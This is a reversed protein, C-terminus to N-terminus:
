QAAKTAPPIVGVARGAAIANAVVTEEDDAGAPSGASISPAKKADTRITDLTKAGQEKSDRYYRADATDVTAGRDALLELFAQKSSARKCTAFIALLRDHERDAGAKELEAAVEPLDKRIQEATPPKDDGEGGANKSAAEAASKEIASVADPLLQRLGDAGANSLRTREAYRGEAILAEVLQPHQARLTTLDLLTPTPNAMQFGEQAASGAANFSGDALDDIVQGLSAIRDVMGAEVARAGVLVDGGGFDALVTEESVGRGRAVQAVFVDAIEDLMAQVSAEGEPTAPDLAKKPSQSSRLVIERIGRKADWGSWDMASYVVGISGVLSTEGAVITEAASGIWYAGSTMQGTSVAVVADFRGSARLDQIRNPVHEVGVAEGGPSDIALVLASFGPDEAVANIESLLDGYRTSSRWSYGSNMLVGHVSVVAIGRAAAAAQIDYLGSRSRLAHIRAWAEGSEPMDGLSTRIITRLADPAMAWAATCFLDLDFATM